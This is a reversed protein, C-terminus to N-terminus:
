RVAARIMTLALWITLTPFWLWATVWILVILNIIFETMTGAVKDSSHFALPILEQSPRPMLMQPRETETTFITCLKYPTVSPRPRNIVNTRLGITGNM